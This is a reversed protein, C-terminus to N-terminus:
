ISSPDQQYQKEAVAYEELKNISDSKEAAASALKNKWVRSKSEYSELERIM